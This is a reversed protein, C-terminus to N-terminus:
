TKGVREEVAAVEEAIADREFYIAGEIIGGLAISVSAPLWLNDSSM